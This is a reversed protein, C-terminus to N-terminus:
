LHTTYYNLAKGSVKQYIVCGYNTEYIPIKRTFIAAEPSPISESVLDRRLKQLAIEILRHRDSVSSKSELVGIKDALDKDTMMTYKRICNTSEEISKKHFYKEIVNERDELSPKTTDHATSSEDYDRARGHEGEEDCPVDEIITGNVFAAETFYAPNTTNFHRSQVM